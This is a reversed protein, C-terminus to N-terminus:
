FCFCFVALSVEGAPSAPCKQARKERVAVQSKKGLDGSRNVNVSLGTITENVTSTKIVYQLFPSDDTPNSTANASRVGDDNAGTGATSTDPVPSEETYLIQLVFRFIYMVM